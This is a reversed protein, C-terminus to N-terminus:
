LAHIFVLNIVPFYNGASYELHLM